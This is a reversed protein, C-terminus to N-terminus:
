HFDAMCADTSLRLDERAMRLSVTHSACNFYVTDESDMSTDMHVPLGMLNGFPSIAGPPCQTLAFVEDRTAFRVKRAGLARRLKKNDIRQAASIILHHFEGDAKVVLAKAGQQLRSGRAGAAAASTTVPEHVLKEYRIGLGDLHELIRQTLATEGTQLEVM